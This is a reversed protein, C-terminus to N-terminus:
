PRTLTFSGYGEVMGSVAATGTDSETTKPQAVRAASAESSAQWTLSGLWAGGDLRADLALTVSAWDEPVIDVPRATGNVDDLALGLSFAGADAREAVVTVDLTEALIEEAILTGAAPIAYGPQCDVAPAGSALESEGGGGELVYYVAEIVGDTRALSLTTQVDAHDLQVFSLGGSFEGLAADVVTQASFDFGEAAITPDTVLARHDEACWAPMDEGGGNDDSATEPEKGAGCAGLLALLLM